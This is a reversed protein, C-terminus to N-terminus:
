IDIIVVGGESPADKEVREIYKPAPAPARLYPRENNYQKNREDMEKRIMSEIILRRLEEESVHNSSPM